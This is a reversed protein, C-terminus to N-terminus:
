GFINKSISENQISSTGTGYVIQSCLLPLCRFDLQPRDGLNSRSTNMWYAIMPAICYVSCFAPAMRSRKPQFALLSPRADIARQKTWWTTNDELTTEGLKGRRHFLCLTKINSTYGIYIAQM